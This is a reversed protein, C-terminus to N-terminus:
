RSLIFHVCLQLQVHKSGVDIQIPQDLERWIREARSPHAALPVLASANAALAQAHEFDAIGPAESNNQKQVIAPDLREM